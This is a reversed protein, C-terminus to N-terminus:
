RGPPTRSRGTEHGAYRSGRGLRRAPRPGSRLAPPRVAADGATVGPHTSAVVVGSVDSGSIHPMPVKLHELGRRGWLDLHNLACARVRVVVDGPGPDPEPADEYRLVDLGGHQHFRVATM